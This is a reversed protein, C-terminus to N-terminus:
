YDIAFANKYKIFRNTHQIQFSMNSLVKPQENQKSGTIALILWHIMLTCHICTNGVTM